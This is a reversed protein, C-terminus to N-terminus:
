ISSQEFLTTVEIFKKCMQKGLVTSVEVVRRLIQQEIFLNYKILYVLTLIAIILGSM